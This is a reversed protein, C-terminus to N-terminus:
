QEFKFWDVKVDGISQDPASFGIFVNHVGSVPIVSTVHEVGVSGTLPHVELTAIQLGDLRDLRVDFVGGTLSSTSASFQKVVGPQTGFDIGGYDLVPNDASGSVAFFDIFGPRQSEKVGSGRAISIYDEAELLQVTPMNDDLWGVRTRIMDKLKNLEEAYVFDQREPFGNWRKQDRQQAKTIFKAWADIKQSITDPDFLPMPSRADRFYRWRYGAEGAFWDDMWLKRYEWSTSGSYVWENCPGCGRMSYAYDFDWVPGMHLLGNVYTGYWSKYYGDPNYAFEQLLTYDIWSQRDIMSRYAMDPPKLWWQGGAQQNVVNAEFEDMRKQLQEKQARTIDGGMFDDDTHLDTKCDPPKPFVVTWKTNSEPISPDTDGMPGWNPNPFKSQWTWETEKIDRNFIYGDAPINVRAADVRIREVLVYLGRYNDNIFLEVFRTRPAYPMMGGAISYTLVNGLCTYDLYCSHLVWKTGGPMGLITPEDLIKAVDRDKVDLDLSYNKKAFRTSSHGRVKITMPVDLSPKKEYLVKLDLAGSSDEVGLHNEIIRMRGKFEPEPCDTRVMDLVSQDVTDIIMVPVVGDVIRSGEIAHWDARPSWFFVIRHGTPSQGALYEVNYPGDQDHQTKQWSTVPGAIKQGGTIQSVNLFQWDARPSRWFVLLDGSPSQGALHEVTYPGDQTQWSTVPGAIKQRTIQSVNVVQWPVTRTLRFYVLLDDAPSQGALHEVTYPADKTQWSTVPGVFKFSKVAAGLADVLFIFKNPSALGIIFDVIFNEGPSLVGDSYDGTFPVTLTNGVGGVHGDANLLLNGGTLQIVQFALETLNDESTNKFIATITFTGFPGGEVPKSDPKTKTEILSLHTNIIEQTFAKSLFWNSIVLIIVTSLLLGRLPHKIEPIICICRM